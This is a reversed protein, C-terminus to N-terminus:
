LKGTHEYPTNLTLETVNTLAYPIMVQCYQLKKLQELNLMKALANVQTLLNFRIAFHEVVERPARQRRNYQM